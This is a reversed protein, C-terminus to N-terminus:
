WTTPKPVAAVFVSLDDMLKMRLELAETDSNNKFSIISFSEDKDHITV